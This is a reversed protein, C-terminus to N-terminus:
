PQEKRLMYGSNIVPSILLDQHHVVSHSPPIEDGCDREPLRQEHSEPNWQACKRSDSRGSSRSRSPGRSRCNAEGKGKGHGSRRAQNWALNAFMNTWSFRHPYLHYLAEALLDTAFCLLVSPPKVVVISKGRVEVGPFRMCCLSLSSPLFPCTEPQPNTPLWEDPSSCFAAAFAKGDM